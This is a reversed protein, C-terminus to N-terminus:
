NFEIGNREASEVMDGWSSVLYRGTDTLVLTGVYSDGTNCYTFAPEMDDVNSFVAEVGHCELLENAASMILEDENPENYCARIWNCTVPFLEPCQEIDINGEILKRLLEPNDTITSLTKISPLNM